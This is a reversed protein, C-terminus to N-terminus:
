GGNGSPGAPQPTNRDDNTHQKDNDKGERVQDTIDIPGPEIPGASMELIRKVPHEEQAVAAAEATAKETLGLAKARIETARALAEALARLMSPLIPAGADALREIERAVLNEMAIGKAVLEIVATPRMKAVLAAHQRDAEQTATNYLERKATVWRGERFWNMVDLLAVGHKAALTAPTADPDQLYERFMQARVSSRLVGVEHIPEALNRQNRPKLLDPDLDM